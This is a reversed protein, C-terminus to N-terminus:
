KKLTVTKGDSYLVISGMEDTRYINEVYKQLTAMTERHPHGYSNGEACSITAIYPSVTKIFEETSSTSSGHHGVKLMDSKLISAGFKSLLEKENEAECDGTFLMSTDGYEAKIVISWKNADEYSSGIPSLVTMKMDGVRLVMGSKGIEVACDSNEIATLVRDFAVTSATTDPMIVTGVDYESIVMDAGGIHDEHPHTLIVYELSSVGLANLYERLLTEGSGPGADILIYKHDPLAILSADGQGIDIIHIECGDSVPASTYPDDGPFLTSMSFGGIDLGNGTFYLVALTVLIVAALVAIGGYPHNINNKRSNKRKGPRYGNKSM